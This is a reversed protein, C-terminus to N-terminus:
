QPHHPLLPVVTVVQNFDEHSRVEQLFSPLLNLILHHHTVTEGLARLDNTTGKMRRYYDSVSLDRQKFTHSRADLQPVHLESNGLFQAEITLWVQCTTEMPEQIIEHLEPSLTDLIWTVMINDLSAWYVSPDTVNSLIHGDPTYLCLTLLVLNHWWKYDSSSPKLVITVV